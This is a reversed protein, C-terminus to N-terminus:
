GGKSRTSEFAADNPLGIRRDGRAPGVCARARRPPACATSPQSRRFTARKLVDPEPLWVWGEGRGLNSLSDVVQRGAKDDAHGRIWDVVAKRDQPAVLRLTILANCRTLVRKHVNAPRQTIAIARFGKRRGRQFIRAVAGLMRETGPRPRGPVRAGPDIYSFLEGSRTDSGRM